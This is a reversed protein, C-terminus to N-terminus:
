SSGVVTASGFCSSYYVDPLDYESFVSYIHINEVIVSGLLPQEKQVDEGKQGVCPGRLHRVEERHGAPDEVYVLVEGLGASITEVTFLAKKM